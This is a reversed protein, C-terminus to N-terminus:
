GTSGAHRRTLQGAAGREGGSLVCCSLPRFPHPALRGLARPVRGVPDVAIVAIRKHEDVAAVLQPDLPQRFLKRYGKMGEVVRDALSGRALAIVASQGPELREGVQRLADSSSDHDFHRGAVGGLGSGVVAGTLAGRALEQGGSLDDQEECAVNGALDKAVLAAGDFEIQHEKKMRSLTQIATEASVRDVVVAFILHTDSADM